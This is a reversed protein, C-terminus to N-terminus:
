TVKGDKVDYYMWEKFLSDAYLLPPPPMPIPLKRKCKGWKQSAERLEDCMCFPPEVLVGCLTTMSDHYVASAVIFFM